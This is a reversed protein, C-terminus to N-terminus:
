FEGIRMNRFIKLVEKEQASLEDESVTIYNVNVNPLIKKQQFMSEAVEKLEPRNEELYSLLFDSKFVLRKIEAKYAYVSETTMGLAEAIFSPKLEGTVLMYEAVKSLNGEGYRSLYNLIFKKQEILALYDETSVENSSIHEYVDQSDEPDSITRYELSSYTNHILSRVVGALHVFLDPVSEKNWPRQGSLVMSVATNVLDEATIQSMRSNNFRSLSRHAYLLARTYAPLLIEDDIKSIKEVDVM